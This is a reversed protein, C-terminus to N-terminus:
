LTLNRITGMDVVPDRPSTLIVNRTGAPAIPPAIPSLAVPDVRRVLYRATARGNLTVGYGTPTAAGWGDKTGVLMAAGNVLVSPTGPCLLDGSVLASGNLTVDEGLLTEVSGDVEGNLTPAHRVTATPVISLATSGIGTYNPDAIVAVVAHSGPYIPAAVSGDYTITVPLGAPATTVSVTKPAGDYSQWLQGFEVSASARQITLAATQSGTYNRDVIDAQVLYSGANVPAASLGDYTIRTALGVPNTTATVPKATGDYTSQLPALSITAVAQNVTIATAASASTYNLTDTPTFTVKLPQDAGADLVTGAAPTYAFQGPTSASANLQAAGLPTGYVIPAPASWSIVPTAPAIVLTGTAAGVYNPDTITAVFGYSGVATPAAGAAYRVDVSLGAPSTTITPAKATGDYTPNLNGVSVSAPTSSFRLVAVDSTSVEALSNPVLMGAVPDYSDLQTTVTVAYDGAESARANTISLTASTSGSVVSGDAQIGDVLPQGRFTWQLTPAVANVGSAGLVAATFTASQGNGITVDQPESTIVEANYTTFTPQGANLNFTNKGTFRIGAANYLEFGYGGNQTINTFTVGNVPKNPLGWLVSYGGPNNITLNSIAINKWEPLFPLALSTPPNANYAAVVAPTIRNSGTAGSSGVTGYYSSFSVASGVNNMVINSYTVNQVVGGRGPESKLNIGATTGNFTLGSITVDHIGKGSASTFSGMSCGHGTGITCNTITVRATEPGSNGSNIVIDDDGNNVTCHDILLDQGAIHIGDTNPSDAPETITINAVVVYRSTKGVGVNINPTNLFSVGALVANTTSEINIACAPRVTAQKTVGNTGDVRDWWAQGQGDITGSGSVMADHVGVVSIFNPTTGSTYPANPWQGMPLMRLICGSALFLNTNSRVNIPGCLFTGAPISVTGGGAATAADLAAQIAPTNDTANDGVAGFATVDFANGPISPLAFGAVTLAAATSTVSGARSSVVVTYTASDAASVGSLTLTPTTAGSIPVGNKQWQYWITTVGTAGASFTVSSGSTVLQSSPQAVITPLADVAVVAPVSATVGISNGVDVTYTGDHGLQVNALALTATQTGTIITGDAATGDTLSTGNFKWQYTLAGAGIAQAGLTAQGGPAVLLGSPQKYIVPPQGNIALAASSSTVTGASNSVVVSYVGMDSVQANSLSLRATAASPNSALDIAVGDKYWRYTAAPYGATAGVAFQATAGADLTLSTPATDIVPAIAPTFGIAVAPNSYYAATAADVQQHDLVPSAGPAGTSLHNWTPRGSIDYATGDLNTSNYEWYRVASLDTASVSWGLPNIHKDVACNFLAFM